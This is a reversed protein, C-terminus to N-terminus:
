LLDHQDKKWVCSIVELKVHRLACRHHITTARVGSLPDLQAPRGGSVEVAGVAHEEHELDIDGSLPVLQLAEIDRQHRLHEM